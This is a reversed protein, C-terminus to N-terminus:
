KEPHVAPLTGSLEASGSPAPIRIWWGPRAGPVLELGGKAGSQPDQMYIRGTVAMSECGLLVLAFGLALGGAVCLVIARKM